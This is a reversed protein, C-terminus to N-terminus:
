PVVRFKQNPTSWQRELLLDLDDELQAIRRDRTWVDESRLLFGIAIGGFMCLMGVFGATM